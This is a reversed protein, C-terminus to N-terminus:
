SSNAPAKQHFQTDEREQAAYDVSVIIIAVNLKGFLVEEDVRDRSPDNGALLVKVRTAGRSWDFSDIETAV